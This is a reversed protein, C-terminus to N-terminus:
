PLITVFEANTSNGSFVHAHQTISTGNSVESHRQEATVYALGPPVTLNYIAVPIYYAEAASVTVIVGQGPVAPSWVAIRQNDQSRWAASRESCSTRAGESLMSLTGSSVHLLHLARVKSDLTIRYQGGLDEVRLESNDAAVAPSGM